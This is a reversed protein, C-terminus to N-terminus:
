RRLRLWHVIISKKCHATVTQLVLKTVLNEVHFPIFALVDGAVIQDSTLPEVPGNESNLPQNGSSVADGFADLTDEHQLNLDIM